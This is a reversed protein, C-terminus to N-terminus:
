KALLAGQDQNQQRKFFAEREAAVFHYGNQRQIENATVFVAGGGFEGVSPKSCWTAYTLSWCDRPRFQRLFRQVLHAVRELKAGEEAYLWLHRGWGEPADDDHFRFEFGVPEADDPDYDELDRWARCGYWDANAADLGKPVSGEIHEHDGFVYVVELQNRLWREEEATLHPLVESFELFNNAM